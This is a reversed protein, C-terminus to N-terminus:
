KNYIFKKIGNYCLKEVLKSVEEIDKDFDNKIWYNIIGLAGNFMFISAYEIDQDDLDPFISKWNSYCHNYTIELIDNLFNLNNTNNFMIKALKKENLLVELLGHCFTSISDNFSKNNISEKLNDVFEEQIKELLDYVDLYYRYFTARNIDAKICLESVTIKNIDKEELLSLFTEKIVNKTYKIRRDM